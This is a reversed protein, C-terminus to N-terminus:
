YSELKTYGLIKITVKYRNLHWTTHGGVDESRTYVGNCNTKKGLAKGRYLQYVTINNTSPTVPIELTLYIPQTDARKQSGQIAWTNVNSNQPLPMIFPLKPWSYGRYSGYYPVDNQSLIYTYDGLQIVMCPLRNKNWTWHGTSAPNINEGIIQLTVSIVNEDKPVGKNQLNISVYFPDPFTDKTVSANMPVFVERQNVVADDYQIDSHIKDDDGIYLIGGTTFKNHPIEVNNIYVSNTSLVINDLTDLTNENAIIVSNPSLDKGPLKFNNYQLYANAFLSPTTNSYNGLGDSFAGTNAGGEALNNNVLSYSNSILKNTFNM